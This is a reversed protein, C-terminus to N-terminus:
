HQVNEFYDLTSDFKDDRDASQLGKLAFGLTIIIDQTTTKCNM